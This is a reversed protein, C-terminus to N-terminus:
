KILSVKQNDFLQYVGAIVIDEGVSLGSKVIASKNGTLGSTEIKRKIVTSTQNDYIWVFKDKNNTTESFIATLPVRILGIKDETQNVVVKVRCSFGAKINYTQPNFDPDTISLTVPIGMGNVSADVFDKVVTKFLRGKLNAFEVYFTYDLNNITMDSEPITFDIELKNPSIIKAIKEGQNVKQYTEVYKKEISGDYPARLKTYSLQNTSYEYASKAKQFNAFAIEYEQQSIAAKDILRKDRELINKNVEYQAKDAQNQLIFDQSDLEAILDGKKVKSGDNIYVKKLVGGVQFALDAYSVASVVGVFDKDFGTLTEVKAVKVPRIFTKTEPKKWCGSLLLPLTMLILFQKRM